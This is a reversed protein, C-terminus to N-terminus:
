RVETYRAALVRPDVGARYATRLLALRLCTRGIGGALFRRGSTAAARDMLLTPGSRRMRSTFELDEMIPIPRFGGLEEFVERRVFIAQDGFFIGALRSRANAYFSVLALRPDREIFRHRFAGGVYGEEIARRISVIGGEPLRTDAHVFVLVDGAALGAGANMQSARGTPAGAVRLDIGARGLGSVAAKAVRETGDTSGGDVIVIESLGDLGGLCALCDDLTAEEDLVPVIATV